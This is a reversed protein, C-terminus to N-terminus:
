ARPYKESQLGQKGWLSAIQREPGSFVHSVNWNQWSWLIATLHVFNVSRFRVRTRRQQCKAEADAWRGKCEEEYKM